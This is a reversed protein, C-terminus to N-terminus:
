RKLAIADNAKVSEILADLQEANARGAGYDAALSAALDSSRLATCADDSSGAPLQLSSPAVGHEAAYLVRVLGFSVCARADQVSTVYTPIEKTIVETDHVVKAQGRAEKVAAAENAAAIKGQAVMAAAVAATQAKSDALQVALLKAADLRHVLLGTSAGGAVLGCAVGIAVGKLNPILSLPNVFSM